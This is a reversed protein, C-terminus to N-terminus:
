RLLFYLILLITILIGFKILKRYIKDEPVLTAVVAKNVKGCTFGRDVNRRPYVPKKIECPKSADECLGYDCYVSKVDVPKDEVKDVNSFDDFVGTQRVNGPLSFEHTVFPNVDNIANEDDLM